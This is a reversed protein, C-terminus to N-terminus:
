KSKIETKICAPLGLLYDISCHFLEAMEILATAPFSGDRMWCYLTSRSIGLKQALLENTMGLRCREEEINPFKIRNPYKLM